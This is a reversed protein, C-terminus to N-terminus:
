AWACCLDRCRRRGVAHRHDETAPRMEIRMAPSAGAAARRRRLSSCKCPSPTGSAMAPVRSAAASLYQTVASASVGGGGALRPRTVAWLVAATNNIGDGVGHIVPWWYVLGASGAVNWIGKQMCRLIISGSIAISTVLGYAGGDILDGDNPYITLPYNNTTDARTVNMELAVIAPLLKVGSGFPVSTIRVWSGTVQTATSAGSGAAAIGNRIIPFESSALVMNAM